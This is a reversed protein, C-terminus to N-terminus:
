EPYIWSDNGCENCEDDQWALRQKHGCQDCQCFYTNKLHEGHEATTDKINHGWKAADSLLVARIYASTNKYGAKKAVKDYTAKEEETVVIRLSPMMLLRTAIWLQNM